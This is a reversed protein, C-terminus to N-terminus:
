GATPQHCGSCIAASGRRPRVRVEITKKDTSFQASYIFGPFRHCHNLITILLMAFFADVAFVEVMFRAM